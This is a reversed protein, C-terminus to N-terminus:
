HAPRRAGAVGVPGNAGAIFSQNAASGDLNARGITTDDNNAWYVYQRDVAVGWPHTGAKIFSQNAGSGDLNARGM